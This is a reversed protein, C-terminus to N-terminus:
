EISVMVTMADVVARSLMRLMATVSLYGTQVRRLVALAGHAVGVLRAVLSGFLDSVCCGMEGRPLFSVGCGRVVM